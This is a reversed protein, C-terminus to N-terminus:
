RYAKRKAVVAAPRASRPASMKRPEEDVFLQPGTGVVVGSGGRGEITCWPRLAELIIPLCESSVVLTDGAWQYPETDLLEGMYVKAKRTLASIFALDGFGVVSLDYTNGM